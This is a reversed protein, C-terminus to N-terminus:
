EVGIFFGGITQLNTYRYIFHFVKGTSDDVLLMFPNFTSQSFM